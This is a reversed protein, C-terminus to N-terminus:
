VERRRRYIGALLGGVFVFTPIVQSLNARENTGAGDGGDGGGGGPDGGTSTPVVTPQTPEPEPQTPVPTPEPEEPEEEEEDETETAVPAPAPAPPAENIVEDPTETPIPFPLPELEDTALDMYNAWIVAPSVPAGGGTVEYGQVPRCVRIDSCYTMRPVVTIKGSKPVPNGPYFPLVTGPEAKITESPYGEWVVTVLNPTYGAFWASEFDQTTGTKGAVPRGIDAVTATGSQIVHTMVQNVVDANNREVVQEGKYTPEEAKCQDDIDPLFARCNGSSDIVYRIPMVQPLRGRAAFGAYARAMEVPTVTEAGGLALSCHAAIEENGYKPAFGFDELLDRVKEKGVEAILQAYVANVSNTTAQDLTMTGYSAGGFNEVEWPDVDGDGDDDFSCEPEDIFAPSRGSFSSSPSIGEDVATMLTFPKFSSGPQRGPYDSAYNFGRAKTINTFDNRKRTGVMARVEGRPTMSVLAAQPDDEEFLINAVADEAQRQMDLDLTTYIKLGAHYLDEGYYKETYLYEKRLWEMFYAARSREIPQGAGQALRVKGRALKQAKRDSIYGEEAMLRLTRDRRERAGIPNNDVQYREPAPIIGALYATEKLTLEEAHKDFYARAAAEIGYSGRGFYITNLYFGLIERKSFRRELKIALIAEKVKRSVTRSPDQLVAQKVYQQTITSGGQQIEGGTVNAWAARVIGRLSVGGHDYFDRDESAIVAEGIYKPLDNTDIIFRTVEDTYTGILRGHVDYVEASSPLIVDRPLPISAFAYTLILIGSGVFVAGIPLLWGYRLLVRQLWSKHKVKGRRSKKKKASM